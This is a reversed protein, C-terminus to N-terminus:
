GNDTGGLAADRQYRRFVDAWVSALTSDNQMALAAMRVLEETAERDVLRGSAYADFLAWAGKENRNAVYLTGKAWGAVEDLSPLQESM